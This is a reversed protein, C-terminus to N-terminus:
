YKKQIWQRVRSYNHRFWLKLETFVEIQETMRQQNYKYNDVEIRCWEKNASIVLITQQLLANYISENSNYNKILSNLNDIVHDLRKADQGLLKILANLNGNLEIFYRSVERKSSQVFDLTHVLTAKLMNLWQYLRRRTKIDNAALQIFSFDFDLPFHNVKQYLVITEKISKEILAHSTNPKWENVAKIATDAKNIAEKATNIRANWSKIENVYRRKFRVQSASYDAAQTRRNDKMNQSEAKEKLGNNLKLKFYEQLSKFNRQRNKLSSGSVLCQGQVRHNIRIIDQLQRRNNRVLDNILELVKGYGSNTPLSTSSSEARLQLSVFSLFGKSIPSSVLQVFEPVSELEQNYNLHYISSSVSMLL